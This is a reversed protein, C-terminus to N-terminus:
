GMMWFYPLFSLLYYLPIHVQKSATRQPYNCDRNTLISATWNLVTLIGITSNLLTVLHSDAFSPHELLFWKSAASNACTLPLSGFLVFNLSINEATGREIFHLDAFVRPWHLTACSAICTGWWQGTVTWWTRSVVRWVDCTREHNKDWYFMMHTKM